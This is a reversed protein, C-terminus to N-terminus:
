DESKVLQFSNYSSSYKCELNLGDCYKTLLSWIKYKCGVSINIVFDDKGIVPYEPLVMKPRFHHELAASKPSVKTTQFCMANVSQNNNEIIANETSFCVDALATTEAQNQLKFDYVQSPGRLLNDCGKESFLIPPPSTFYSVIIGGFIVILLLTIITTYISNKIKQNM